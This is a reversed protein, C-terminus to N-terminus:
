GASRPGGHRRTLVTGWASSYPDIEPGLLHAGHTTTTANASSPSIAANRSARTNDLRTRSVNNFASSSNVARTSTRVPRGVAAVDFLRERAVDGRGPAVACWQRDQEDVYVVELRYVVGVTVEGTILHKAGHGM